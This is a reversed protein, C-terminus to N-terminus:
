ISEKWKDKHRIYVADAPKWTSNKFVYVQGSEWGDITKLYIIGGPIKETASYGNIASLIEGTSDPGYRTYPYIGIGLIDGAKFGLDKPYFYVTTDTSETNLGAETNNESFLIHNTEADYMMNKVVNLQMGDVSSNYCKYLQINYGCLPSNENRAVCLDWAGTWLANRDKSDYSLSLQGGDPLQPSVYNLINQSAETIYQVRAIPNEDDLLYINVSGEVTTKVFVERGNRLPDEGCDLTWTRSGGLSSMIDPKSIELFHSTETNEASDYTFFNEYISKLSNNFGDTGKCNIKFKNNHLDTITINVQPHGPVSVAESILPTSYLRERKGNFTYAQIQFKILDGPSVEEFSAISRELELLIRCGTDDSMDDRSVIIATKSNSYAEEPRHVNVLIFKGMSSANARGSSSLNVLPTYEISHGNQNNLKGHLFSIEYAIVPSNTNTQIAHACTGKIGLYPNGLIWVGGDLRTKEGGAVGCLMEFSADEPFSPAIYLNIFANATSIGKYAAQNDYKPYIEYLVVVTAGNVNAEVPLEVPVGFSLDRKVTGAELSYRWWVASSEIPNNNGETDATKTVTFTNDGNDTITLIGAVADTAVFEGADLDSADWSAYYSKKVEDRGEPYALHPKDKFLDDFNEYPAYVGYDSSGDLLGVSPCSFATAYPDKELTFEATYVGDHPICTDLGTYPLIRYVGRCSAASIDEIDLLIYLSSYFPISANKKSYLKIRCKRSRANDNYDEFADPDYQLELIAPNLPDTLDILASATIQSMDFTKLTQWAM